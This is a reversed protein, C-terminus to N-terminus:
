ALKSSSTRTWAGEHRLGPRLGTAWARGCRFRRAPNGRAWCNTFGPTCRRRSPISRCRRSCRICRCARRQTVRENDPTVMWFFVPTTDILANFNKLQGRIAQSDPASPRSRDFLGIATLFRVMPDNLSLGDRNQAIEKPGVRLVKYSEMLTRPTTLEIRWAEKALERQEQLAVGQAPDTFGATVPFRAMSARIASLAETSPTRTEYAARNTHRRFIQAFLPDPKVSADEVLRVRATPRRDPRKREYPGEPFLQMEARHGRQRAAQDLLELFTGQSMVMQRSHPDTEPLLRQLDMHLTITGPERLDVLWSQLNHSHPALIAHALIWRRLDTEAKPQWAAVAEAPLESSCGSAGATAALIASGGIVKLAQRRDVQM